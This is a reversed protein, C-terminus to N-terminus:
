SFAQFAFATPNAIVLGGYTRVYQPESGGTDALNGKQFNVGFRLMMKSTNLILGYNM